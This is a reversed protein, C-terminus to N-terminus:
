YITVALKSKIVIFVNLKVISINSLYREKSENGFPVKTVANKRLWPSM